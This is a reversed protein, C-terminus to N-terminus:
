QGQLLQLERFKLLVLDRMTLKSPRGLVGALEQLDPKGALFKAFEMDDINDPLAQLGLYIMQLQKAMGKHTLQIKLFQFGAFFMALCGAVIDLWSLDARFYAFCGIVVMAVSGHLLQANLVARPKTSIYRHVNEEFRSPNTRLDKMASLIDGQYARKGMEMAIYVHQAEVPTLFTMTEHEPLATTETM